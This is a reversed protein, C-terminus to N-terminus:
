KARRLGVPARGANPHAAAPSVHSGLWAHASALPRVGAVCMLNRGRRRQRVLGAHLLVTLHFTAATSHMQMTTVIEGVTCERERLLDLM